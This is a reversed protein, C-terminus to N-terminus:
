WKCCSEPLEPQFTFPVRSKPDNQHPLNGPAISHRFLYDQKKLRFTGFPFKKTCHLHYPNRCITLTPGSRFKGLVSIQKGNAWVLGFLFGVPKGMYITFLGQRGKGLNGGGTGGGAFHSQSSTPSQYSIHWYNDCSWCKLLNEEWNAQVWLVTLTGPYLSVIYAGSGAVNM